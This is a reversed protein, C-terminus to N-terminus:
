RLSPATQKRFMPLKDLPHSPAGRSGKNNTITLMPNLMENSCRRLIEEATTDERAEVNETGIATYTNVSGNGYRPTADERGVPKTAPAM